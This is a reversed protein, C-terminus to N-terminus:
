RTTRPGPGTCLETGCSRAASRSWVEELYRLAKMQPHGVTGDHLDLPDQETKVWGGKRIGNWSAYGQAVVHPVGTAQAAALLHDIGETRPRNTTAFWRDMHKIDAKDTIATMQDVIADPRARAVAEGVSTADLGDMVVADAGM